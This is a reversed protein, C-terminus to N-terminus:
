VEEIFTMCMNNGCVTAANELVSLNTSCVSTKFASPYAALYAQGKSQNTVVCLNNLFAVEAYNLDCARFYVSNEKIIELNQPTLIALASASAALGIVFDRNADPVQETLNGDKFIYISSGVSCYIKGYTLAVRTVPSDTVKTCQTQLTHDHTFVFTFLNANVCGLVGSVGTPIDIMAASCATCDDFTHLPGTVGVLTACGNQLVLVYCSTLYIEPDPKVDNMLVCSNSQVFVIKIGGSTCEFVEIFANAKIINQKVTVLGSRLPQAVRVRKSM